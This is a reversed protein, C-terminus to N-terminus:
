YGEDHIGLLPAYFLLTRRRPKVAATRSVPMGWGSAAGCGKRGFIRRVRPAICGSAFAAQRRWPGSPQGTGTTM